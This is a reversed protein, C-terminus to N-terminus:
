DQAAPADSEEGAFTTSWPEPFRVRFSQAISNRESLWRNPGLGRRHNKNAFV